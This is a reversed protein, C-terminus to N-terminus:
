GSDNAEATAASTAVGIKDFEADVKFKEAVARQYLEELNAAMEGQKVDGQGVDLMDRSVNPQSSSKVLDTDSVNLMDHDAMSKEIIDLAMVIKEYDKQAKSLEYRDYLANEIRDLFDEILKRLDLISREGSSSRQQQSKSMALKSSM